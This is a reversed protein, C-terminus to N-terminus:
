AAARRFQGPAMGTHQKFSASFASESAYGLRWALTAVPESGQRLAQQALRMRWHQLYQLPAKGVLTKFRLALASRSMGSAQALEPLTWHRAPDGHLLRLAPGVKPDALAGLWGDAGGHAGGARLAQVLAIRALNAVVLRQGPAGAGAEDRFLDLLARLAPAASSAAKVHLEPPLIEALLARQAPAVEFRGAVAVVDPEGDGWRVNGDEGQHAGAFHAVGDVPPLSLDSAVVFPRGGHMVLCDGPELCIPAEAGDVLIWQRGEIQAIFKLYAYAPLRLSWAGGAAIRLSAGGEIRLLALVDSLPDGADDAGSAPRARM